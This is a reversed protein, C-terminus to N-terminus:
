ARKKAAAKVAKAPQRTAIQWTNGWADAVVARRDGYPTDVPKEISKAGASVAKRYTKDTDEVYVYLCALCAERVDDSSVMVISDGIRMEAPRGAAQRGTAGFVTRLFGTMGRVDDVFIRPTITRWGEPQFGAM